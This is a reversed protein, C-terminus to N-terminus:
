VSEGFTAEYHQKIEKLQRILPKILWRAMGAYPKREDTFGLLNEENFRISAAILHKQSADLTSIMQSTLEVNHWFAVLDLYRAKREEVLPIRKLQYVEISQLARDSLEGQIRRPIVNGEDDFRLHKDPKDICPNLLLRFNEETAIDVHPGDARQAGPRLPFLDLKGTAEDAFVFDGDANRELQRQRRNCAPCSLLLNDWDAALWYYGPKIVEEGTGPDIQGKPRYHEIDRASIANLSTECYACKGNFLQILALKVEDMNYVSFNPKPNNAPDQVYAIAKATEKSAPSDPNDLDLVAPRAVRARDIPIM